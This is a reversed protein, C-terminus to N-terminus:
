RGEAVVSTVLGPVTRLYALSRDAWDREKRITGEIDGAPPTWLELIASRVRGAAELQEVIGCIDLLGDGAPTGEIEFGMQHRHRRITFDKIHLNVARPGLAPVVTAPPEEAGFSNVTDLVIGVWDGAADLIGLLQGTTFRDHNEIALTLGLDRYEQEVARLRDVVEDPSPHDDGLDVVIRVFPSGLRAALRAYTRLREADTGRTGVELAVGLAAAEGVLEDLEADTLVELPLNDAIQVLRIGHAAARRVLGVATLPDPVPWGPVGVEWTYTFSSLGLEM